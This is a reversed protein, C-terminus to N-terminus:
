AARRKGLSAKRAVAAAAERKLDDKTIGTEAEIVDLVKDILRYYEVKKPGGKTASRSTRPIRLEVDQSPTTAFWGRVGITRLDTALRIIEDIQRPYEPDASIAGCHDVEPHAFLWSRLHDQSTFRMKHSEPWNLYAAGIAAHLFKRSKDSAEGGMDYGCRPCHLSLAGNM